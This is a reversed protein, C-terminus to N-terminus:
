KTESLSNVYSELFDMRANAIPEWKLFMLKKTMKLSFLSKRKQIKPSLQVHEMEVANM